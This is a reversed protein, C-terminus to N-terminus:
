EYFLTFSIIDNSGLALTPNNGLGDGSARSTSLDTLFRVTTSSEYVASVLIIDTASSDFFMGSGLARFSSSGVTVPLSVTILNGSSGTQTCTLDVNVCTFDNTRMYKAYNVTATRTGNQSLVPTYSTWVGIDNLDAATLVDGAVWTGPGPM